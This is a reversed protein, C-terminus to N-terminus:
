VPARLKLDDTVSTVQIQAQITNPLGATASANKPASRPTPNACTVVGFGLPKTALRNRDRTREM